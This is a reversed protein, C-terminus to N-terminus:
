RRKRSSTARWRFVLEAQRMVRRSMKSGFAAGLGIPMSRPVVCSARPRRALRVGWRSRRSRGRPARGSRRRTRRSPSRRRRAARAPAARGLVRALGDDAHLAEHAAAGVIGSVAAARARRTRGRWAGALRVRTRKSTAAAPDHRRHLDAGLDQAGEGSASSSSRLTPPATMVTGAYKSSAWRWAVLSAPLARRARPAAAGSRASPPPAPRRGRSSALVAHEGDVVEAAAREVDRDQQEVVADELHLDVPPSLASPPSSM